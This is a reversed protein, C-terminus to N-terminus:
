CRTSGRCRVCNEVCGNHARNCSKRGNPTAGKECIQLQKVCRDMCAPYDNAHARETSQTIVSFGVLMLIAVRPLRSPWLSM